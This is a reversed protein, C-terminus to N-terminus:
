GAFKQRSRPGVAGRARNGVSTCGSAEVIGDCWWRLSLSAVADILSPFLQYLWVFILPDTSTLRLKSPAARHLVYMCSIGYFWLRPRM